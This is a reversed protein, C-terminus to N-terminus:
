KPLSRKASRALDAVGVPFVALREIRRVEEANFADQYVIVGGRGVTLSLGPVDYQQMFSRALDAMAARENATPEPAEAANPAPQAFAFSPVSLPAAPLLPGAFAFGAGDLARMLLTRRTIGSSAM